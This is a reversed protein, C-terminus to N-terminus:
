KPVERKPKQMMRSVAHIRLSCLVMANKTFLQEIKNYSLSDYFLKSSLSSMELTIFISDSTQVSTDCPAMPTINLKSSSYGDEMRRRNKAEQKPVDRM